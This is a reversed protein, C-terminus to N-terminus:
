NPQRKQNDFYDSEFIPVITWFSRILPFYQTFVFCDTCEVVVVVLDSSRVIQRLYRGGYIGKRM